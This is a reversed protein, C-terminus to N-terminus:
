GEALKRFSCETKALAQDLDESTHADSIFAAEFQSPALYIGRDLAFHFLYRYREASATALTAPATPLRASGLYLWFISGSRTL